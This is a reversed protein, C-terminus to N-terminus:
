GEIVDRGALVMEGMPGYAHEEVSGGGVGCEVVEGGVGCEVVLGGPLAEEGWQWCGGGELLVDARERGM